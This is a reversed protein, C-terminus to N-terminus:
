GFMGSQECKQRDHIALQWVVYQWSQRWVRWSTVLKHTQKQRKKAKKKWTWLTVKFSTLGDLYFWVKWIKLSTSNSRMWPHSILALLTQNFSSKKKKDLKIHFFSWCKVNQVFASSVSLISNTESVPSVFCTCSLTVWFLYSCWIKLLHMFIGFKHFTSLTSKQM